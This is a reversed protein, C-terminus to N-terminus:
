YRNKENLEHNIYSLLLLHLSKTVQALDEYFVHTSLNREHVCKRSLNELLVSEASQLSWRQKLVVGLEKLDKRELPQEDLDGNRTTLM